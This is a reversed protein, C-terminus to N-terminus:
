FPNGHFFLSPRFWTHRGQTIAIYTTGEGNEQVGNFSFPAIIRLYHLEAVFAALETSVGMYLATVYAPFATNGLRHIAHNTKIEEHTCRTGIVAKGSAAIYGVIGAIATTATPRALCMSLRWFTHRMYSFASRVLDAKRKQFLLYFAGVKCGTSRHMASVFGVRM